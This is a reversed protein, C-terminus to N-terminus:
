RTECPPTEVPVYNVTDAKVDFKGTRVGYDV